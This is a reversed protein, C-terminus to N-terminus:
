GSQRGNITELATANQLYEKDLGQEYYEPSGMKSEIEAQRAQLTQQANVGAPVLTAAPNIIRSMSAFAQMVGPDNFIAKGDAMRASMFSDLAAEPIHAALTSKILAVNSEFDPGWNDKMMQTAQQSDVVDQQQRQEARTNELSIQQEVLTAATASDVNANHLTEFLPQFEAKDADSLVLGDPMANAYEDPTSPVNNKERYEALQEDTANEPLGTNAEQRSRLTEQSELYNKALTKMDPVRKLQNLGAENDDGVLDERWGDPVSSYWPSPAEAPPDLPTDVPAAEVPAAEVPAAEVPAAEVPPTVEDSMTKEM